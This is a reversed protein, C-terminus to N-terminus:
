PTSSYINQELCAKTYPDLVGSEPLNCRQQFQKVAEATIDGYNLELDSREVTADSRVYRASTRDLRKVYGLDSLIEQLYKVESGIRSDDQPITLTSDSNQDELLKGWMDKYNAKLRRKLIKTEVSDSVSSVSAYNGPSFGGRQNNLARWTMEGVVGDDVLGRDRQFQKVAAETIELFNGTAEGEFYGLSALERQLSAVTDNSDEYQLEMGEVSSFAKEVFLLSTVLPLMFLATSLFCGVRRVSTGEINEEPSDQLELAAAHHLYAITEM